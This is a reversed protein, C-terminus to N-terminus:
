CAKDRNALLHDIPDTVRAGHVRLWNACRADSTVHPIGDLRAAMDRGLESAIQPHAAPLPGAAGCCALADECSPGGPAPGICPHFSPADRPAPALEHLHRADLGAARAVRWAGGSAIVLTRDGIRARLNRGHEQLVGQHDLLQEGLEDHSRLRAVPEGLRDALAEAWRRKDTEVAVWPGTGEITPVTPPAPPTQTAARAQALLDAVPRDLKCAETCAGCSTCLSAHTWATDDDAHGRLWQWVGTMMSTPTGAERGTGVAVPCVHRCLRPCFACTDVDSIKM